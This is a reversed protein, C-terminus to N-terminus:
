TRKKDIYNIWGDTLTEKFNITIAHCKLRMLHTDYQAKLYHSWYKKPLQFYIIKAFDRLHEQIYDEIAAPAKYSIFGHLHPFQPDDYELTYRHELLENCNATLLTWLSSYLLEKEPLGLRAYAQWQKPLSITIEMLYSCRDAFRVCSALEKTAVTEGFIDNFDRKEDDTMPRSM